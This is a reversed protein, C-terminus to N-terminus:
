LEIAGGPRASRVPSRRHLNGLDGPVLGGLPGPQQPDAAIVDLQVQGAARFREPGGRHDAEVAGLRAGRRGLSAGSAARRIFAKGGTIDLLGSVAIPTTGPAPAPLPDPAPTGQRNGTITTMLSNREQPGPFLCALILAPRSFAFALPLQSVLM